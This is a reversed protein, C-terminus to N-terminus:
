TGTEAPEARRPSMWAMLLIVVIAAAGLAEWARDQTSWWALAILALGALGVASSVQAHSRGAQVAKQYFHERHAQWIKEGRLLRRLLTITADALYYSPLIIAAAWAGKSALSLLLWGILFGLPVSGVDGLFVKAPHWNWILFGLAAAAIIMAPAFLFDVRDFTLAVVATGGACILTEVATIGDIGDMFNFLNIFWIWAIVLLLLVLSLMPQVTLSLLIAPGLMAATALLQAGLRPLPGLGKVDDIWSVAVLLVAGGLVSITSGIPEEAWIMWGALAPLLVAIVGLGGGRPTPVTHSSRANPRDLIQRNRLFPILLRVLGGAFLAVVAAAILTTELPLLLQGSSM